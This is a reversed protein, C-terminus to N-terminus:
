LIDCYIREVIKDYDFSTTGTGIVKYVQNNHYGILVKHCNDSYKSEDTLSNLCTFREVIKGEFKITIKDLCPEPKKIDIVVVDDPIEEKTVTITRKPNTIVTCKTQNSPYEIVFVNLEKTNIRLIIYGDFRKIEPEIIEFSGGKRFIIIKMGEKYDDIPIKFDIWINEINEKDINNSFQVTKYTKTSGSEKMSLIDIYSNKPNQKKCQIVFRNIGVDIRPTITASNKRYMDVHIIPQKTHEGIISYLIFGGGGGYAIVSSALLLSILLFNITKKM